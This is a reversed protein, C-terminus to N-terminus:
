IKDWFIMQEHILFAHALYANMGVGIRKDKPYIDFQSLHTRLEIESLSSRVIDRQGKIPIDCSIIRGFKIRCVKPSIPLLKFSLAIIHDYVGKTLHPQAGFISKLM